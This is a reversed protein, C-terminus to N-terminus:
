EHTHNEESHNPHVLRFDSGGIQLIGEEMLVATGMILCATLIASIITATM